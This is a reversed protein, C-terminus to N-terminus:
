ENIASSSKHLSKDSHSMKTSIDSKNAVMKSHLFRKRSGNKHYRSPWIERPHLGLTKAIAREPKEYPRHMAASCARPTLGNAISIEKLTLELKRIAAVIDAPHWDNQLM